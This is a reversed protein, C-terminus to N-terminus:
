VQVYDNIFPNSIAIILTNVVVIRCLDYMLINPAAVPLLFTFLAGVLFTSVVIIKRGLLDYLFGAVIVLPICLFM